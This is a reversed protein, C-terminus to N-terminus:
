PKRAIIEFPAVVGRLLNSTLNKVKTSADAGMLVHIGLPPPGDADAMKAKVAEFFEVAFEHRDVVSEVIFGASELAQVYQDSTALFSTTEDSAWPLPFVCDGDSYKTVDYVGFVSGPKLVRFAEEFVSVKDEINMCVHMTFAGDFSEDSYSLSMADGIQLSVQDEMGVWKNLVKGAEIYSDTLDVGEVKVDYKAAAFRAGGGIGCGIDLVSKGSEFELQPFFHETAGRGGIHFEDVLSLEDVTVSAVNSGTKKLGAEIRGLIDGISYHAAVAAINTM